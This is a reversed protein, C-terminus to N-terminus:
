LPQELDLPFIGWLRLRAPQLFQQLLGAQGQGRHQRQEGREKRQRCGV